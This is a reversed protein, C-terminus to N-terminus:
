WAVIVGASQCGRSAERKAGVAGAALSAQSSKTVAAPQGPECAVAVGADVIAGCHTMNKKAVSEIKESLM